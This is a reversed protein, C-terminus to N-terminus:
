SATIKDRDERTDSPSLTKRKAARKRQHRQRVAYSVPKVVDTADWIHIEDEPCGNWVSVSYRLCALTDRLQRQRLKSYGWWIGREALSRSCQRRLEERDEMFGASNTLFTDFAARVERDNVLSDNWYQKSMNNDHVRYYAQISDMIEAVRGRTALRMWMELDAAFPLDSLYGGVAKQTATRVVATPTNVPNWIEKCCHTIFEAGEWMRVTPLARSSPDPPPVDRFQVVAGHLLAVDPYAELVDVARRLAGPALMDDASLLLSYTGDARQLGENYTAIHGLNRVHRQYTVRQDESALASGISETDDTSADDIIDVNLDVDQTLISYVCQRLYRGYNYCPVVITVSGPM